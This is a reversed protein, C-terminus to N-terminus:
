QKPTDSGFTVTRGAVPYAFTAAAARFVVREDLGSADASTTGTEHTLAVSVDTATVELM